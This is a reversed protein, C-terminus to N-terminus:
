AYVAQEFNGTMPQVTQHGEEVEATGEEEEGEGEGEEVVM